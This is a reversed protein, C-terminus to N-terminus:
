NESKAREIIEKEAKDMATCCATCIFHGKLSAKRGKLTSKKPRRCSHCTFEKM